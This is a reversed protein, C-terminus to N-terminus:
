LANAPQSGEVGAGQRMSAAARRGMIKVFAIHIVIGIGFMITCAWGLPLVLKFVSGDLGGDEIPDGIKNKIAFPEFCLEALGVFMANSLLMCCAGLVLSAKWFASLDSWHVTRNYAAVAEAEKATLEAVAAHEPRPQALEEGHNQITNSVTYVAYAMSAMNVVGAFITSGNACMTWANDVGPSVKGMCAGAVVCPALLTVVPLTGLLMQPINVRVIGCTVSTPWDPGGVLLSVKGPNLGRSKLIREIARTPIKDVGILQQVKISRGLFYGIMYQGVCAVCKTFLGIACAAACGGWFGVGDTSSGANGLLIGAFIYVPLGPVPPLLFM